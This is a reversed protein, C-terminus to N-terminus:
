NTGKGKCYTCQNSGKCTYCPNRGIMGSGRCTSCRGSGKPTCHSCPSGVYPISTARKAAAIPQQSGPAAPMRSPQTAVTRGGRAEIAAIIQSQRLAQQEAQAQAMAQLEATRKERWRADSRIKEQKRAKRAAATKALQAKYEPSPEQANASALFTLALAVILMSRM